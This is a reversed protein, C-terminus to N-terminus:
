RTNILIQLIGSTMWGNLMMSRGYLSVPIGSSPRLRCDYGFPPTRVKTSTGALSIFGEIRLSDHTSDIVHTQQVLTRGFIRRFADLTSATKPCLNPRAKVMRSNSGCRRSLWSKRRREQINSNSPSTLSSSPM